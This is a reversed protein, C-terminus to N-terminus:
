QAPMVWPGGSTLRFSYAYTDCSHPSLGRQRPMHERLFGTILPAIPTMRVEGPRANKPRLRSTIARRDPHLEAAILILVTLVSQRPADEGRDIRHVGGTDIGTVGRGIM